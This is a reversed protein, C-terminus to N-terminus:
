RHVDYSIATSPKDALSILTIGPTKVTKELQVDPQNRHQREKVEDCVDVARIDTRGRGDM